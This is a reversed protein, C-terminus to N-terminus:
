SRGPCLGPREHQPRNEPTLSANRVVATRGGNHWHANTAYWFKDPEPNTIYALIGVTRVGHPSPTGSRCEPHGAGPGCDVESCVRGTVGLYKADMNATPSRPAAKSVFAIRTCDPRWAPGGYDMTASPLSYPASDALAQITTSHPRRRGSKGPMIGSSSSGSTVYPIPDTARANYGCGTILLLLKSGNRHGNTGQYVRSLKPLSRPGGVVGGTGAGLVQNKADEGRSEM